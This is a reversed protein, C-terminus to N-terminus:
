SFEEFLKSYKETVVSDELTNYDVMHLEGDRIYFFSTKENPYKGVRTGYDMDEALVTIKGDRAFLLHNEAILSYQGIDEEWYLAEPGGYGVNDSKWADCTWEDLNQGFKWKQIIIKETDRYYTYCAEHTNIVDYQERDRYGDSSHGSVVMYPVINKDPHDISNSISVPIRNDTDVFELQRRLTLVFKYDKYQCMGLGSIEEGTEFIIYDSWRDRSKQLNNKVYERLIQMERESLTIIGYKILDDLGTAYNHLKLCISDMTPEKTMQETEETLQHAEEQQKEMAMKSVDEHIDAVMIIFYVIIAAGLVCLPLIWLVNKIPKKKKKNKM